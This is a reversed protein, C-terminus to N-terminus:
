PALCRFEKLTDTNRTYFSEQESSFANMLRIGDRDYLFEPAVMQVVVRRLGEM